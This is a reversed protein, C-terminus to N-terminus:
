LSKIWSIIIKSLEKEKKTFSHNARSIVFSSFSKSRVANKRFAEIHKKVPRDLCEDRSGMVLAIPQRISALATWPASSNYYPFVDEAKGPTYLGLFRFATYVFGDSLFFSNPDKSFLLKARKMEREFKKKGIRQIEAPIDSAAGLLLVGKVNRDRTKYLYYVAKNAGTSHGALIINKYGQKKAFDVMAQIDYTCDEFKEFLTGLLKHKGQGRVVIDHGRTNFKFYGIGAKQCNESLEELLTQSSYFYSTLGHLWILATESKQKPRVFVGDLSIGDRTKIKTLLIPIM